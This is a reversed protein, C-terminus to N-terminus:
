FVTDNDDEEFEDERDFMEDWEEETLGTVIFERQGASLQPFAYQILTGSLWNQMQEQTIPLDRVRSEGTFPSVREILM